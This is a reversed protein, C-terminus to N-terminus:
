GPADCGRIDVAEKAGLVTVRMDGRALVPGAAGLAEVPARATLTRGETRSEPVGIWLDPRGAEIIALQGPDPSRAFTVTATIENGGPGQTVACTAREVGAEAASRLRDALAAEIEARGEEPADPALTMAVDAAAAVCIDSCVGFDADLALRVPAAPDVPQLRIPLVLVREYGFTRMGGVEFTEPRPWEYTVGALNTSGSWDFSPPIGADGPVRWYTHWGPALRIEVAAVRAGDAARWGPILRVEAAGPSALAPEAGAAAPLAAAAFGALTLAAIQRM